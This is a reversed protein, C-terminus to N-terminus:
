RRRALHARAPLLAVDGRAVAGGRARGWAGADVGATRALVYQATGLGIVMGRMAWLRAPRTDLGLLFLLLVVGIEGVAQIEDVHEIGLLPHPSHPGLAAGVVLLGLTSGLNLRRAISVAIATVALVIAVARM